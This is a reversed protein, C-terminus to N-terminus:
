PKDQKPAPSPEADFFGRMLLALLVLAYLLVLYGHYVM